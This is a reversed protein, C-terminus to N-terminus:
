VFLQLHFAYQDPIEVLRADFVADPETDAFRFVGVGQYFRKACYSALL